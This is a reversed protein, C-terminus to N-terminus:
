KLSLAVTSSPPSCTVDSVSSVLPKPKISGVLRVVDVNVM